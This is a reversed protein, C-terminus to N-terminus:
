SKKFSVCNQISKGFVINALFKIFAVFVDSKANARRTTCEQIHPLIYATQEFSYARHIKTLTMGLSLYLKLTMYHVVYNRRPGLTATLKKQKYSKRDLLKQSTPSLSFHFFFLFKLKLIKM